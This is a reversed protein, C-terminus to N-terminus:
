YLILLILGELLIMTYSLLVEIIIYKLIQMHKAFQQEFAIDWSGMPKTVQM